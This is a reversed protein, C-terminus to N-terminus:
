CHPHRLYNTSYNVGGGCVCVCNARCWHCYLYSFCLRVTMWRTHLVHCQLVYGKLLKPVGTDRINYHNCVFIISLTWPRRFLRYYPYPLFSPFPCKMIFLVNGKYFVFCNPNFNMDWQQLRCLGSHPVFLYTGHNISYYHKQWLLTPQVLTKRPPLCPAVSPARGRTGAARSANLCKHIWPEGHSPARHM